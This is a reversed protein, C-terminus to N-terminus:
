YAPTPITASTGSINLRVTGSSGGQGLATVLNQLNNTDTIGGGYINVISQHSSGGSGSGSFMGGTSGQGSAGPSAGGGTNAAARAGGSGSGGGSTGAIVGYMAASAFDLAAAEPNWFVESLGKATEMIAMVIAQARKNKILSAAEMGYSAAMATGAEVATQRQKKQVDLFAQMGHQGKQQNELMKQLSAAFQNMMPAARGFNGSMNVIAQSLGTVAQQMTTVKQTVDPMKSVFVDPLAGGPLGIAGGPANGPLAAASKANGIQEHALAAMREAQENSEELVQRMMELQTTYGHAALTAQLMADADDKVAASHQKTEGTVGALESKLEDQFKKEADTAKGVEDYALKTAHLAERDKELAARARGEMSHLHLLRDVFINVHDGLLNFGDALNKTEIWAKTLFGLLWTLAPIAQQMLRQSMGSLEDKVQILSEQFEHDKQVEDATLHSHALAMTTLEALGKSGKDLMEIMQYGARSFLEVAIATKNPGDPMKEFADFVRPLIQDMTLLRGNSDKTQVGLEKLAKGAESSPMELDSMALSLHALGRTVQEFDVGAEKAGLQLGQLLDSSVGTAKSMIYLKDGAESAKAAMEYLAGGLSAVAGAVLGFAPLTSLLENKILSNVSQLKGGIGASVAEVNLAFKELQEQAQATDAKLLFGLSLPM